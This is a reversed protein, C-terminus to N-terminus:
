STGFRDSDTIVSPGGPVAAALTMRIVESGYGPTFSEEWIGNQFFLFRLFLLPM